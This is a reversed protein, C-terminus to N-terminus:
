KQDSLWSKTGHELFVAVQDIPFRSDALWALMIGDFAAKLAAAATGHRESVGHSGALARTTVERADENLEAMLAASVPDNLARVALALRLRFFERDAEAWERASRFFGALDDGSGQRHVYDRLASRMAEEILADKTPFHYHLLGSTVGAEAAIAKVSAAELGDRGVVRFTAAILKERTSSKSM